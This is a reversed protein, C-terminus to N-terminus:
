KGFKNLAKSASLQLPVGDDNVGGAVIEAHNCEPLNDLYNQQAEAESLKSDDFTVDVRLLITTMQKM